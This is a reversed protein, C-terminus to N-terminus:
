PRSASLLEPKLAALAILPPPLAAGARRLKQTAEQCGRVNGAAALAQGEELTIAPAPAAGQAPPVPATLGSTQQPQGGAPPTPPSPPNAPPKPTLFAVLEQCINAPAGSATAAKGQDGAAPPAQPAVTLDKAQGPAGGTQALAPSSLLGLMLVLMVRSITM